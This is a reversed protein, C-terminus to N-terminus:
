DGRRLDAALQDALQAAVQEAVERPLLTHAMDPSGGGRRGLPALAERLRDGCGCALSQSCAFVLLAPEELTSLFIAATEPVTAVVRSALLKVYDADRDAFSRKILRLGREVRQEVALQVAQHHALEERLKQQAKVIARADSSLREVAVPVDERKVSLFSATSQLTAFDQRAAAVARLGCVFEVRLGKKVREASRLLLGGIEGLARM